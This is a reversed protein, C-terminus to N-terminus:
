RQSRKARAAAPPKKVRGPLPAVAPATKAAAVVPARSPRPSVPKAGQADPEAPARALSANLATALAAEGSVLAQWALEHGNRRGKQVLKLGDPTITLTYSKGAVILARRLPGELPTTM